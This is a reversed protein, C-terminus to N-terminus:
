AALYGMMFAGEGDGLCDDEVQEEIVNERYFDDTDERVEATRLMALLEQESRTIAENNMTKVEKKLIQTKIRTPKRTKDIRKDM